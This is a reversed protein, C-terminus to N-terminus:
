PSPSDVTSPCLRQQWRAYTPIAKSTEYPSRTLNPSQALSTFTGGVSEWDEEEDTVFNEDAEGDRVDWEEKIEM